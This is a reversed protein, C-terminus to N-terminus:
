FQLLLMMAIDAASTRQQSYSSISSFGEVCVLHPWPSLNITSIISITVVVKNINFIAKQVM